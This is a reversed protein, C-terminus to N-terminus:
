IGSASVASVNGNKEINFETVNGELEKHIDLKNFKGSITVYVKCSKRIENSKIFKFELERLGDNKLLFEAADSYFSISRVVSVSVTKASECLLKWDELGVCSNQDDSGSCGGDGGALKYIKGIKFKSINSEDATKRQQKLYNCDGGLEGLAHKLENMNSCGSKPLLDKLYDDYTAFGKANMSVMEAADYFGKKKAEDNKDSCGSLCFVVSFLIFFYKCTM